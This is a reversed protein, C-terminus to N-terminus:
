LERSIARLEPITTAPFGLSHLAYKQSIHVELEGTKVNVEAFAEIPDAQYQSGTTALIEGLKKQFDALTQVSRKIQHTTVASFPPDTM